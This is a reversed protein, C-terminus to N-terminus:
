RRRRMVLALGGLGLLAISSPEPITAETFVVAGAVPRSLGSQFGFSETGDADAFYYYSAGATGGTGITSRSYIQTSTSTPNITAPANAAFAGIVLDGSSVDYSGSDNGVMASFDAPGGAAAGTFTIVGAGVSTNNTVNIVLDAVTANTIDLYYTTIRQTTTVIVNYVSTLEVGGYTISAIDGPGGSVSETATTVVIKGGAEVEFDSITRPSSGGTANTPDWYAGTNTVVIAANASVTLAALSILILNNM